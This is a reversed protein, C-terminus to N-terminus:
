LWELLYYLFQGESSKSPGVVRAAFYRREPDAQALATQADAVPRVCNASFRKRSRKPVFVVAFVIESVNTQPDPPVIGHM